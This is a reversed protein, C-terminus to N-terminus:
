YLIFKTVVSQTGLAYRLFYVGAHLGHTNLELQYEGTDKRENLLIQQVSGLLNTLTINAIGSSTVQYKIIAAESIPNPSVSIFLPNKIISSEENVGTILDSVDWVNLGADNMASLYKGDPSITISVPSSVTSEIVPFTRVPQTNNLQYIRVSDTFTAIYDSNPFLCFLDTYDFTNVIEYSEFPKSGIFRYISIKGYGYNEGFLFKGDNSFQISRGFGTWTNIHIGSHIDYFAVSDYYYSIACYKSDPSISLYQIRFDNKLSFIQAKTNLDYIAVTSDDFLLGMTASDKSFDIQDVHVNKIPIEDIITDNVFDYFSISNGYKFVISNGDPSSVLGKPERGSLSLWKNLKGTSTEWINSSNLDNYTVLFKGNKIFFSSTPFLRHSSLKDLFNGSKIDFSVYGDGMDFSFLKTEDTSFEFNSLGNLRYKLNYIKSTFDNLENTYNILKGTAFDRIQIVGGLSKGLYNDQSSIKYFDFESRGSELYPITRILKMSPISYEYLSDFCAIVIDNKKHTFFVDYCWFNITDHWILKKQEFDFLSVNTPPHTVVALYKSDDSVIVKKTYVTDHPTLNKPNYYATDQFLLEGTNNNFVFFRNDYIYYYISYKGDRSLKADAYYLQPDLSDVFLLKCNSISYFEIDKNARLVGLINSDSDSKIFIIDSCSVPVYNILKNNNMDWIGINDNFIAAVYKSDNSIAIKYNETGGLKEWILNSANTNKNLLFLNIVLVILVFYRSFIIKKFLM